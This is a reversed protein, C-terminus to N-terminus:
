KAKLFHFNQHLHMCDFSADVIRVAMMSVFPTIPTAPVFHEENAVTLALFASFM